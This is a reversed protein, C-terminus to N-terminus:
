IGLSKELKIKKNRSPTQGQDDTKPDEDPPNTACDAPLADENDLVDTSGVDTVMEQRTGEEGQTNAHLLRAIQRIPKDDFATM